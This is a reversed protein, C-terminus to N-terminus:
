RLEALMTEPKEVYLKMLNSFNAITAGDIVRHDASWSIQLLHVPVVNGKSDFRPVKQIKGLAGIVVEPLLLVPSAYTGGITGINSLTFTGGTMDSPSLQSSIAAAHLRQMEKAIELISKDQVDKINPVVLGQPTDMAVGINHYNKITVEALDASLSSNLIPYRLLALSAAKIFFPMYTLKIGKSEAIPKIHTRLSQLNDTMFEDYYGFHPVQAASTMTRAMVRKIGTLTQKQERPKHGPLPHHPQSEHHPQSPPIPHTPTITTTSTAAPTHHHKHQQQEYNLVDEKLIRGDRGTGQIKGWDIKKTKILHRVAPTALLKAAEAHADREAKQQHESKIEAEAELKYNV